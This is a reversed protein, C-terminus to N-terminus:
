EPSAQTTFRVSSLQSSRTRITRQKSERPRIQETNPVGQYIACFSYWATDLLVGAVCETLAETACYWRKQEARYAAGQAETVGNHPSCSAVSRNCDCNGVVYFTRAAREAGARRGVLWSIRSALPSQRGPSRQGTDAAGNDSATIRWRVPRNSWTDPWDIDKKPALTSLAHQQRHHFHVSHHVRTRAQCQAGAPHERRTSNSRM